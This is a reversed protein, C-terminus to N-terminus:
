EAESDCLNKWTPSICLQRCNCYLCECHCLCASKTWRLAWVAFKVSLKMKQCKKTFKPLLSHIKDFFQIKDFVHCKFLSILHATTWFCRWSDFAIQFFQVLSHMQIWTLPWLPYKLIVADIYATQGDMRRSILNRASCKSYLLSYQEIFM